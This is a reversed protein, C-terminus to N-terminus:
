CWEDLASGADVADRGADNVHAVGRQRFLVARSLSSIQTLRSPFYKQLLPQVALGVFCSSIQGDPLDTQHSEVIESSGDV